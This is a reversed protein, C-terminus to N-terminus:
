IFRCFLQVCWDISIERNGAVVISENAVKHGHQNVKADYSSVIQFDIITNVYRRNSKLSSFSFQWNCGAAIFHSAYVCAM